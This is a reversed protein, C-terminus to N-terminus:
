AMTVSPFVSSSSWKITLSATCHWKQSPAAPGIGLTIRRCKTLSSTRAAHPSRAINGSGIQDLSELNETIFPHSLFAGVDTEGCLLVSFEM